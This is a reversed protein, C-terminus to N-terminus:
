IITVDRVPIGDNCMAEGDMLKYVYCEGVLVFVDGTGGSSGSSGGADTGSVPRLIFPIDCGLMVFVVDGDRTGHPALGMYGGTTLFLVRGVAVGMASEYHDAPLVWQPSALDDILNGSTRRQQTRAPREDDEATTTRQKKTTAGGGIDNHELVKKLVVRPEKGTVPYPNRNQAVINNCDTYWETILDREAKADTIASLNLKVRGAARVTDFLKGPISLRDDELVSIEGYESGGAAFTKSGWFCFPRVKLAFTWDPVWSPLRENCALLQRQNSEGACCLM